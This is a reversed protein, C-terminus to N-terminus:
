NKNRPPPASTCAPPPTAPTACGPDLRGCAAGAGRAGASGGAGASGAAGGPGFGGQAFGGGGLRLGGAGSGGSGAAAVTGGSGTDNGGDKPAGGSGTVGGGDAGGAGSAGGAGGDTDAGLSPCLQALENACQDFDACSDKSCADLKSTTNTSGCSKSAQGGSGLQTSQDTCFAKGDGLAQSLQPHCSLEKKCFPVCSTLFGTVVDTDSAKAKDDGCAPFLALLILSASPWTRNKNM